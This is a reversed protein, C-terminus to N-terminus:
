VTVTVLSPGDSAVPSVIVSVIGAPVVNLAPSDDPVHESIGAPVMVHVSGSRTAGNGDDVDTSIASSM